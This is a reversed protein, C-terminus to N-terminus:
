ITKGSRGPPLFKSKNKEIRGPGHALAAISGAAGSMMELASGFAVAAAAKEGNPRGGQWDEDGRNNALTCLLNNVHFIRSLAGFCAGCRLSGINMLKGAIVSLLHHGSDVENPKNPPM